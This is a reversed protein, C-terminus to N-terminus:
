KKVGDKDGGGKLAQVSLTIQAQYFCAKKGKDRSLLDRYLEIAQAYHGTDIYAVGLENEMGITKETEGGGDGSLPKFFNFAADPRGAIAYVPILDRRAAKQLQTANPLNNFQDGYEIVKKFESLALPFEDTN